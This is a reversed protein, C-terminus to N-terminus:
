DRINIGLFWFAEWGSTWEDELDVLPLMFIMLKGYLGVLLERVFM